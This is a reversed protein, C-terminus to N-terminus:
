GGIGLPYNFRQSLIRDLGGVGTLEKTEIAIVVGCFVCEGTETVFRLPAAYHWGKIEYDRLMLRGTRRGGAYVAVIHLRDIAWGIQQSRSLLELNEDRSVGWEQSGVDVITADVLEADESDSAVLCEGAAMMSQVEPHIWGKEDSVRECTPRPEVRYATTLAAGGDIPLSTEIVKEVDRRYLLGQCATDCRARPQGRWMTRSAYYPNDSVLAISRPKIPSWRDIRLASKESIFSALRHEALRPLGYGVLGAAVISALASVVSSITLRKLRVTPLLLVSYLLVTNSIISARLFYGVLNGVSIAGLAFFLPLLLLQILPFATFAALVGIVIFYTRM